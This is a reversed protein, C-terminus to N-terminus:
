GEMNVNTNATIALQHNHCFIKTIGQLINLFFYGISYPVLLRLIEFLIPHFYFIDLKERSSERLVFLGEM